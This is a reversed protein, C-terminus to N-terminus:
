EKTEDKTLINQLRWVQIIDIEESLYTALTKEYQPELIRGLNKSEDPLSIKTFKGAAKSLLGAGGVIGCEALGVGALGM